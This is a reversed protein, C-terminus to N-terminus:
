RREKLHRAPVELYWGVTYTTGTRLVTFEPPRAFTPFRNRRQELWDLAALELAQPIRDATLNASTIRGYDTAGVLPLTSM